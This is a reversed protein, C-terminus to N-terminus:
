LLILRQMVARTLLTDYRADHLIEASYGLDSPKIGFMEGLSALSGTTKTGDIKKTLILFQAVSQTDLCRYSVFNEWTKPSLLKDTVHAIDFRVGHGVPVLKRAGMNSYKFLFQYVTGKAEDCKIAKKNHEVLNIGNIGLAEATVQYIDNNPKLCLNLEDVIDLQDNTVLFCATLLSKDLGIGGTETDLFLYM